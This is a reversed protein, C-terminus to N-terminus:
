KIEGGQKGVLTYTLILYQVIKNVNKKLGNWLMGQLMEKIM